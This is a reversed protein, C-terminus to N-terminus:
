FTTMKREGFPLQGGGREERETVLWCLFNWEPARTCPHLPSHIRGREKGEGEKWWGAYPFGVYERPHTRLHQSMSQDQKVLILHRTRKM